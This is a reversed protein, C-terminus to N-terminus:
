RRRRRLLMGLGGLALLSLTAPEPTTRLGLGVPDGAGAAGRPYLAGLITADADTIKGDGTLDGEWWYRGTTLGNDYTAGLITADADSVLGDLNIDAAWTFRVLISTADVAVDGFTSLQQAEPLLANDLYGVAYLTNAAIALSSTIGDGLWNGGNRGSVIWQQVDELPSSSGDYDIVLFGDTLDWKGTGVMSLDKIVNTARTTNSTKLTGALSVSDMGTVAAGVTLTQGAAVTTSPATGSGVLGAIVASGSNVNFANATVPGAV